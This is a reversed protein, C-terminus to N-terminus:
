LWTDADRPTEDSDYAPPGGPNDEVILSADSENNNACSTYPPPPATYDIAPLEDDLNIIIRDGDFFIAL